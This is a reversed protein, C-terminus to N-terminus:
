AHKMAIVICLLQRDHQEATRTAFESPSAHKVIQVSGVTSHAAQKQAEHFPAAQFEVTEAIGVFSEDADLIQSLLFSM